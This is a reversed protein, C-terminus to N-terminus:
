SPRHDVRRYIRLAGFITFSTSSASITSKQVHLIFTEVSYHENRGDTSLRLADLLGVVRANTYEKYM